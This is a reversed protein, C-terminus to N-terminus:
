QLLLRKRTHSIELIVITFTSFTDFQYALRLDSIMYKLQLVLIFLPSDSSLFDPIATFFYLSVQLKRRKSDQKKKKGKCRIIMLFQPFDRLYLLSQEMYKTKKCIPNYQSGKTYDLRTLNTSCYFSSRELQRSYPVLGRYIDRQKIVMDTQVTQAGWVSGNLAM